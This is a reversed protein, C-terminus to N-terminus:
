RKDVLCGEGFYFGLVELLDGRAKDRESQSGRLILCNRPVDETITAGTSRALEALDNRLDGLKVQDTNSLTEASLQLTDQDVNSLTGGTVHLADKDTAAYPNGM